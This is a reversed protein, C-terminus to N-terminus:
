QSLEIFLFITQINKEKKKKKNKKNKVKFIDSDREHKFMSDFNLLHM